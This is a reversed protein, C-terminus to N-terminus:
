DTAKGQLQQSRLSLETKEVLAKSVTIQSVNAFKALPKPLGETLLGAVPGSM